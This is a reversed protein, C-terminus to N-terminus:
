QGTGAFVVPITKLLIKCDLWFSWNDVYATDLAIYNRFSPDTRAAVQWLGTIGPIVDLRRLHDVSYKEYESPIPPRPGVLSMEGKLINLFQPLEDISYKRLFRGISTIRPDDSIKFLIEERENLHNLSDRLKDADAVMTRFKYCIFTKGKKGIRISRYLIPGPSGLKILVAIMLLVPSLGILAATATLVDLYHKMFPGLGPDAQHRFSMLPVLGFYEIPTPTVVGEFTDPVVRADIGKCRAAFILHKVLERNESHAIFIEDIFHSRVIREFDSVTGLIQANQPARRRDLPLPLNTKCDGNQRCDLYGKFVFGLHRNKSLYKELERAVSGASVILVNRSHLGGLIRKRHVLRWAMMAVTSLLVTEGVVIRSITQVGSLYISAAVLLTATAVARLLALQEGRISHVKRDSYDSYFHSSLLLLVVYLLVFGLHKAVGRGSSMQWEGDGSPFHSLIAFCASTLILIVDAALVLALGQTFAQRGSAQGLTM